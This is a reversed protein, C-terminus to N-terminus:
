HNNGAIKEERNIKALLSIHLYKINHPKLTGRYRNPYLNANYKNFLERFPIISITLNNRPIFSM